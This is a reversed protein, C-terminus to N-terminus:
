IILSRCQKDIKFSKPAVIAVVRESQLCVALREDASRTLAVYM